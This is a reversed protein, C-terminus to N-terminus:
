MPPLGYGRAQRTLLIFFLSRPTTIMASLGWSSLWGQFDGSAPSLFARGVEQWSPKESLTVEERSWDGQPPECQERPLIAWSMGDQGDAGLCATLRGSSSSWPCIWDRM